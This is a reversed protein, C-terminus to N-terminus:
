WHLLGAETLWKSNFIRGTFVLWIKYTVRDGGKLLFVVITRIKKNGLFGVVAGLQEGLNIVKGSHQTVQGDLYLTQLENKKVRLGNNKLQCLFGRALKLTPNM